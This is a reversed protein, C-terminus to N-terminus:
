AHFSPQINLVKKAQAKATGEAITRLLAECSLTKEEVAAKQTVLKENLEALQLSAEALKSM